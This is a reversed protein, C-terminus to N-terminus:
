FNFSVGATPTFEEADFNYSSGLTIEAGGGVQYEYEAGVNQLTEDSDGNLYATLGMAAATVEFGIDEADMDYTVAGGLAAVGADVGGVGAAIVTNETDLNYDAGATVQLRSMDITYAGQINSIDTIDSGFDTFGIAVAAGGAQIGVATGMAPAALTQEGEAGPLVGQDNGFSLGLGAVSMGVGYTDLKVNDNGDLVFDLDVQALGTADIGLDLATTGGWDGAATEAINISFEGSIMAGAQATTDEAFAVSALVTTIATTIFLTRM